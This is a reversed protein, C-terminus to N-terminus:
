PVAAHEDPFGVRDQIFGLPRGLSQLYIKRIYEGIVGLALLQLGAFFSVIALVSAMGPPVIHPFLLKVVVNAAGYLFGLAAAVFGVVTVARIPVVTSTSVVGNVAYGLLQLLSSSSRGDHRRMRHYPLPKQPFGIHTIAGRLYLDEDAYRRIADLV